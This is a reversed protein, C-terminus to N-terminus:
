DDFLAADPNHAEMFQMELAWMQEELVFAEAKCAAKNFKDPWGHRLFCDYIEQSEFTLISLLM